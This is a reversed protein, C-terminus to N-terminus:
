RGRLASDLSQPTYGFLRGYTRTMHPQDAFGTEAAVAGVRHPAGLILLSRRVRQWLLWSKMPLGVVQSFRESLHSPSLGVERALQVLSTDEAGSLTDLVRAIRHDGLPRGGLPVLQAALAYAQTIAGAQFSSVLDAARAALQGPEIAYSGGRPSQDRALRHLDADLLITLVGGRARSVRRVGPPTVVVRGRVVSHENELEITGEVAINIATAWMASVRPSSDNSFLVAGGGTHRDVELFRSRAM